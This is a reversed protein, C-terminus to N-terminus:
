CDSRNCILCGDIMVYSNCTEHNECEYPIFGCMNSVKEMTQKM